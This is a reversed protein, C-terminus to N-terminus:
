KNLSVAVNAPWGATLAHPQTPSRPAAAGSSGRGRVPHTAFPLTLDSSAFTPSPAAVVAAAARAVAADAARHEAPRATTEMGRCGGGISVATSPEADSCSLPLDAPLRRPAPAFAALARRPSPARASLVADKGRFLVGELAEALPKTLSSAASALRRQAPNLTKM